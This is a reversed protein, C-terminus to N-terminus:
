SIRPGNLSSLHLFKVLVIAQQVDVVGWMNFLYLEATGLQGACNVFQGKPSANANTTQYYSGDYIAVAAVEWASFSGSYKPWLLMGFFVIVFRTKVLQTSFDM